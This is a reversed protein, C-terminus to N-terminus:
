VTITEFVERAVGDVVEVRRVKRVTPQYTYHAHGKVQEVKLLGDEALERLRRSANAPTYSTREVVLRQIEGSPIAVGPRKQCYAYIRDKLSLESM